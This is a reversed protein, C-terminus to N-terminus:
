KKPKFKNPDFGSVDFEFVPSGQKYIDMSIRVQKAKLMHKYFRDYNLIFITETSNDAPGVASFNTAKEDDFRVLVTCEEYSLCLIQGRAIKFIVEKGHRPNDRLLIRGFQVGAYPFDFEVSNTSSVDAYYSTGKSMADTVQSYKWQSGLVAAAPTTNTIPTTPSSTSPADIEAKKAEQPPKDSSSCQAAAWGLFILALIGVILDKTSSSAPIKVGCHPCTRVSASVEKGCEKCETLAM